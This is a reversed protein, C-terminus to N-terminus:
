SRLPVAHRAGVLAANTAIQLPAGMHAGQIEEGTIGPLCVVGQKGKGGDEDCGNLGPQM